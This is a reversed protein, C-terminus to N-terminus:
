KYRNFAENIKSKLNPYLSILKKKLMDRDAIDSTLADFIRYRTLGREGLYMFIQPYFWYSTGYVLERDPYRENHLDTQMYYAWMEGVECYGYGEETGVGYTVFGSTVFSTMIFTAFSNWYDKGVQMFHSAHALEHVALSYISEYDDAGSLGLTIDPLFMKVLFAYDGLFKGVVSGDILVGQQLMPAASWRMKQFLWIRLNGPPTSITKEGDRCQEYYDYAANNVVCRTFLKRESSSSVEVNVGEPSHKGLTSFSAPCVLLNFGIGFGHKNKFVLRYRPNASFQRTMQYYGDKDTYAHAFKVFSNCSVRVGSVGFAESGKAPDLITIRGSPSAKGGKTQPALLEENGTLVYSMREVEEWDVGDAKTSESHEAIYCKDLVEYRIGAPFEFDKSVVAYQWTIKDEDISPDHYYDGERVITYDVPHDILQLGADELTEYEQEDAPLFRVYLDTPELPTRGARTPYLRDLAKTVNEVSYPDELQDGLVIMEHRVENGEIDARVGGAVSFRDSCSVAVLLPIILKYFNEM